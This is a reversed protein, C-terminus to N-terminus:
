CSIRKEVIKELDEKLLLRFSSVVQADWHLALFVTFYFTGAKTSWDHYMRQALVLEDNSLDLKKLFSSFFVLL